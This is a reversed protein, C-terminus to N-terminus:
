DIEIFRCIAMKGTREYEAAQFEQRHWKTWYGFTCTADSAKFHTCDECSSRLRNSMYDTPNVSDRRISVRPKKETKKVKSQMSKGRYAGM